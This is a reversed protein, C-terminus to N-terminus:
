ASLPRIAGECVGRDGGAAKFVLQVVDVCVGIVHAHATTFRALQADSPPKGAILTDWLTQMEDFYYARVSALLTDARGAAEQVFVEDRLV